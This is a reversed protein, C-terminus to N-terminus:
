DDAHRIGILNIQHEAKEVLWDIEQGTLGLRSMLRRATPGGPAVDTEAPGGDILYIALAAAVVSQERDDLELRRRV